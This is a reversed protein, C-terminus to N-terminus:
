GQSTIENYSAFYYKEGNKPASEQLYYIENQAGSSVIAYLGFAIKAERQKDTTFGVIKLNVISFKGDPMEAKIVSEAANGDEDFIENEGLAEKAVAFIGHKVDVNMTEEYELIADHDIRFGVSIGDDSFESYSYGLSIFLANVAEEGVKHACGENQCAVSKVGEQSYGNAYAIITQIDHTLAPTLTKECVECILSTECSFDDTYTHKGTAAQGVIVSQLDCIVCTNTVMEDYGCNGAQIERDNYHVGSSKHGDVDYAEATTHFRYWDKDTHNLRVTYSIEVTDGGCFILQTASDALYVTNGSADTGLHTGNWTSANDFSVTLTGSKTTYKSRGDAYNTIFGNQGNFDVLEVINGSLDSFQNQAFVVKLPMKSGGNVFKTLDTDSLNVNTMKGLFVLTLSTKPAYTGIFCYRSNFSTFGEPFYLTDNKVQCDSLFYQGVSTLCNPLYDSALELEGLNYLAQMGITTISNPLYLTDIGKCGSFSSEGLVRLSQCNELSVSSLKSCGSFTGKAITQVACGEPFVVEELDFSNYFAWEDILTLNKSMTIKKCNKLQAFANSSITTVSDPIVFEVVNPESKGSGWINNMTCSKIGYPLEAYYISGSVYNKGTAGNIFSYDVGNQDAWNIRVVTFKGNSKEIWYRFVYYSPYATMNGDADKLIVISEHDQIAAATDGTYWAPYGLDNVLEIEAGEYSVTEAGALTAFLCLMLAIMASILIIKKKM